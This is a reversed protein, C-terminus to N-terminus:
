ACQPPRPAPPRASRVLPDTDHKGYPKLSRAKPKSRYVVVLRKPIGLDCTSCLVCTVLVRQLTRVSTEVRTAPRPDRAPTGARPKASQADCGDVRGVLRSEAPESSMPEVLEVQVVQQVRPAPTSWAVGLPRHVHVVLEHAHSIHGRSVRGCASSRPGAPM